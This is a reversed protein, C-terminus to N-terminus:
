KWVFFTKKDPQVEEYQPMVAEADLVATAAHFVYRTLLGPYSPSEHVKVERCPDLQLSFQDGDVGLEEKIARVAALDLDEGSKVKESLGFFNRSRRRGDSFEQYDEFLTAGPFDSALSAIIEIKIVSIERVLRDGEWLIICDGSEVEQVLSQWSKASGQGYLSLDLVKELEMQLKLEKEAM